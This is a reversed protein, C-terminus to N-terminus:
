ADPSRPPSEGDRYKRPGGKGRPPTRPTPDLEILEILSIELSESIQKALKLGLRARGHWLNWAQSKSLGARDAFDKITSVGHAQLCERLIMDALRVLM